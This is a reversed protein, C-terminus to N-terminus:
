ALGALEARLAAIETEKTELWDKTGEVNLVAERLRRPTIQAELSQIARIYDAVTWPTEVVELLKGSQNYTETRNTRTM